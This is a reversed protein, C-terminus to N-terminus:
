IGDQAARLRGHDRDTPILIIRTAGQEDRLITRGPEHDVLWDGRLAEVFPATQVPAPVPCSGVFMGTTVRLKLHQGSLSYHGKLTGCLMSGSVRGHRFVIHPHYGPVVLAMGDWYESISWHRNELGTAIVRSFAMIPRGYDDLLTLGDANLVFRDARALGADIANLTESCQPDEPRGQTGPVHFRWHGDVYQFFYRAFQCPVSFDILGHSIEMIANSQDHSIGDISALRWFTAQLESPESGARTDTCGALMVGAALGSLICVLRALITVILSWADAM